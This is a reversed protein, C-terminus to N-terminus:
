SFNYTRNTDEPFFYLLKTLTHSTESIQTCGDNTYLKSVIDNVKTCVQHIDYTRAYSTLACCLANIYWSGDVPHIWATYGPPTAHGVFYDCETPSKHKQFEDMDASMFNKKVDQGYEDREYGVDINDGRCAQFFFVKPKLSLTPSALGNFQSIINYVKIPKGDIGYVGNLCGHTMICCVFSDYKSHNERAYKDITMWLEMATLDKYLKVTYLLKTFTEELNIEDKRTGPRDQLIIGNKRALSFDQNSLIICLGRPKSSMKYCEIEPGAPLAYASSSPDISNTDSIHETVQFGVRSFQNRINDYDDDISSYSPMSSGCGSITSRGGTLEVNDYYNDDYQDLSECPEKSSQYYAPPILTPSSNRNRDITPSPPERPSTSTTRLVKRGEEYQEQEVIKQLEHRYEDLRRILDKRSIAEFLDYLASINTKSLDGESEFLQFLKLGSDIREAQGASIHCLYRLDRLDSKTLDDNLRLLLNTYKKDLAESHLPGQNTSLPRM